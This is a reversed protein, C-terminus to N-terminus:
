TTSPYLLRQGRDFIGGCKVAINSPHHETGTIGTNEYWSKWNNSWIQWYEMVIETLVWDRPNNKM